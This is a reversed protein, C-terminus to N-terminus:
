LKKLFALIENWLLFGTNEGQYAYKELNQLKHKIKVTSAIFIFKM